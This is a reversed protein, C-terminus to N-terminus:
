KIEGIQYPPEPLRRWHTARGNCWRGSIGYYGAEFEWAGRPFTKRTALLLVTDLPPWELGRLEADDDDKPIEKWSELRSLSDVAFDIALGLAVVTYPQEVPVVDDYPPEGRRWKNHETLITICTEINM